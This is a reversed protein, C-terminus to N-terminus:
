PDIASMIKQELEPPVTYNSKQVLTEVERASPAAASVTAGSGTQLLLTKRKQLIWFIGCLFVAGIGLIGLFFWQALVRNKQPLTYLHIAGTYESSVATGYRETIERLMKQTDASTKREELIGLTICNNKEDLGTYVLGLDKEMYPLLERQIQLLYNRSYVQYVFTLSSDKEVLALMEERGANGSANNQIGFTINETGGDTSWMGCIYDPYQECWAQHLDGATEYKAEEASVPMVCSFVLFMALLLAFIKKM